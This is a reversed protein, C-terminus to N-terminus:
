LVGYAIAVYTVASGIAMGFGLLFVIDYDKM